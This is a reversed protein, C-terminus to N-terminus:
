VNNEDNDYACYAETTKNAWATADTVKTLAVGDLYHTTKLNGVSWGQTGIRVM